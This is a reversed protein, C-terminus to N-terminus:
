VLGFEIFLIGMCKKYERWWRSLITICIIVVIIHVRVLIGAGCGIREFWNRDCVRSIYYIV